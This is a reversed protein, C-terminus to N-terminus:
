AQVIPIEIIFESGEGPVSKVEISGQHKKITNYVISLGLGTGEGVPKTTFFPEFLKHKTKEDMGIGNDAISIYLKGNEAWTRITVIGEGSEKFKEKAAYIANTIINLFVQNLKGPYCDLLPIKGYDKVIRVHNSLQNNVIVITSELGENIDARKLDDEDLRSFIRLGKVIEATRSSGENIGNMLLDIETKLYDFDAEQKISHIKQKKEEIGLDSLSLEEVRNLVDLVTEVDRKLPKVNSTVFNIPNNIEHAIGATLQGLSAMKESEVLQSQAQKLDHMAVNLNDNSEKLEFTRENVKAELMVNQERIIRENEKAANFAETQAIEKEKRFINIRDALAFSLLVVEVASGIPMIYFTFNNYPIVGTDSLVFLVIGVLFVSWAILFFGAPRYGKRYIRVASVLMFISVLLANVQTLQFSEVFKGFFILLISITYVFYFLWSIRNFKPIFEKSRLFHQMFSMGTVGSLVPFILLNKLEFSPMDPWLYQFPLGFVGIQTLLVSIIYSVYLLYSNDRVTFFIFLNYLLMVVMIGVYLGLITDQERVQSFITESSGIFVPLRFFDTSRIRMYVTATDGKATSLDFIYNPDLYKRSKFPLYEGYKIETYNGNKDPAYFTIEDLTPNAVNILFEENDSHNIISCRYWIPSHGNNYQPLDLDSNIFGPNTTVSRITLAGSTDILYQLHKGMKVPTNINGTIELTGPSQAFASIQILLISVYFFFLQKIHKNKM